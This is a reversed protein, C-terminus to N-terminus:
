VAHGIVKQVIVEIHSPAWSTVKEVYYEDQGAVWGAPQVYDNEVINTGYPFVILFDRSAQVGAEKTIAEGSYRYPQVIGLKADVQILGRNFSGSDTQTPNPRLIVLNVSGTGDAPSGWIALLDAADDSMTM